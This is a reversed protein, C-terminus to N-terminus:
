YGVLPESQLLDAFDDSELIVDPPKDRVYKKASEIMQMCEKMEKIRKHCWEQFQNQIHIIHKREAEIARAKELAKQRTEENQDADTELMLHFDEAIKRASEYPTLGYMDAVYNIADGKVGCAFCYYFRDIKMSPHKDDHFPCCALGKRGVKLGYFEAVERATVYDKVEKFISM